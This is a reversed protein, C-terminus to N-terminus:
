EETRYEAQTPRAGLRVAPRTDADIFAHRAVVGARGPCVGHIPPTSRRVNRTVTGHVPAFSETRARPRIIGSIGRPVSCFYCGALCATITSRIQRSIFILWVACVLRRM